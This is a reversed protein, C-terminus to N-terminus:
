FGLMKRYLADYQQSVGDTFFARSGSGWPQCIGRKDRLFANDGYGEGAKVSGTRILLGTGCRLIEPVGDVATSSCPLRMSCAEILVNGFAESDSTLVHVDIERNFRQM